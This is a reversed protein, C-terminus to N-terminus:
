QQAPGVFHDLLLAGRIFRNRSCKQGRGCGQLGAVVYRIHGAEGLLRVISTNEEALLANAYRVSVGAAEAVTMADLTPDSLRSEIAARVNLLAV